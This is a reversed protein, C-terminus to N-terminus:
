KGKEKQTKQTQEQLIQWLYKQQKSVEKMEKELNLMREVFFAFAWDLFDGGKHSVKGESKRHIYNHFEDMTTKHINFRNFKM